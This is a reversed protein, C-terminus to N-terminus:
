EPWLELIKKMLTLRPKLQANAGAKVPNALAREYTAAMSEASKRNLGKQIMEKVAAPTLNETRAVTAAVGEASQGEGWRVIEGIRQNGLIVEEQAASKISRPFMSRPVGRRSSAGLSTGIGMTLIMWVAPFAGGLIFTANYDDMIKLVNEKAQWLRPATAPNIRSPFMRAAEGARTESRMLMAASETMSEDLIEDINVDIVSGDYYELVLWKSLGGNKSRYDLDYYSTKFSDLYCPSSYKLTTSAHNAAGCFPGPVPSAQLCSTGPDIPSLIGNVGESGPKKGGAM